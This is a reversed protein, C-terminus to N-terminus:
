QNGGAGYGRRVAIVGVGVTRGAPPPSCPPTGGSAVGGFELFIYGVSFDIV